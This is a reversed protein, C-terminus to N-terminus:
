EPKRTMTPEGCCRKPTSIGISQLLDGRGTCYTTPAGAFRPKPRTRQPPQPPRTPETPFQAKKGHIERIARFKKIPQKDHTTTGARGPNRTRIGMHRLPLEVTCGAARCGPRERVDSRRGRVDSM